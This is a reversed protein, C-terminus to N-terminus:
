TAPSIISQSAGVPPYKNCPHKAVPVRAPNPAVPLLPAVSHDLSPTTCNDECERRNAHNAPLIQFGSTRTFNIGNIPCFRAAATRNDVGLKPFIRELYKGITRTRLGLIEGIQANTKGYAVWSLVERERDTLHRCKKRMAPPPATKELLLCLSTPEQFLTFVNLRSDPREVVFLSPTGSAGNSLWRALAEPLRDQPSVAAFHERMWEEAQDSVFLIRGDPSVVLIAQSPPSANTKQECSDILANLSM